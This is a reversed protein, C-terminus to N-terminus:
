NRNVHHTLGWAEQLAPVDSVAVRELVLFWHGYANREDPPVWEQESATWETARLKPYFTDACAITDVITLYIRDVKPLTETYLSAGGIIMVEEVDGVQSLADSLSTALRCDAPLQRSQRSLVINRRRPLARGISRHTTHGMLVPKGMTLRKFRRLDSTLHWPLDGATGIGYARDIAVIHSIRPTM